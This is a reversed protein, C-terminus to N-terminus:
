WRKPAGLWISLEEVSISKCKLNNADAEELHIFKQNKLEEPIGVNVKLMKFARQGKKEQHPLMGRVARKFIGDPFRPFFPGHIPDGRHIRQLYKQKTVEPVGSIRAKECNVVFVQEGKLLDKAIYTSLRGLIQDTADYVKM